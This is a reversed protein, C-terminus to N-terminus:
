EELRSSKDANKEELWKDIAEKRFRWNKGIKQGPLRDEQALKYLTSRSIRLYESLEQITFITGKNKINFEM